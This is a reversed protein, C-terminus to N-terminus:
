LPESCVAHKAREGLFLRPKPDHFYCATFCAPRQIVSSPLALRCSRMDLDHIQEYGLAGDLKEVGLVGSQGHWLDRKWILAIGGFDVGRHDCVLM